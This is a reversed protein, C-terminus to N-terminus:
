YPNRLLTALYTASQKGQISTSDFPSLPHLPMHDPRQHFSSCFPLPKFGLSHKHAPSSRTHHILASCLRASCVSMFTDRGETFDLVGFLLRSEQKRDGKTWSQALLDWEPKFERCLQCGFRADEATLVVAVSYDRPTSTLSKYSADNLVIPTSSRSLRSFKAFREESSLKAASAGAVLACASALISLLRM